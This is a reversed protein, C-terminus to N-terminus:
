ETGKATDINELQEDVAFRASLTSQSEGNPPVAADALDVCSGWTTVDKQQQVARRLIGIPQRFYEGLFAHLNDPRHKEVQGVLLDLIAQVDTHTRLYDRDTLRERHLLKLLADHQDASLAGSDSGICHEFGHMQLVAPPVPMTNPAAASVAMTASVSQASETTKSLTEIAQEPTPSQAQM